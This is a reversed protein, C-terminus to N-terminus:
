IPSEIQTHKDNEHLFWDGNLRYYMKGHMSILQGRVLFYSSDFMLYVPGVYKAIADEVNLITIGGYGHCDKNYFDRDHEYLDWHVKIMQDTSKWFPFFGMAIDTGASIGVYVKSQAFQKLVERIRLENIRDRIMRTNGGHVIVTDAQKLLELSYKVKEETDFFLRNATGITEFECVAERKPNTMYETDWLSIHAQNEGFGLQKIQNVCAMGGSSTLFATM